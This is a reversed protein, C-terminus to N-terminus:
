TQLGLKRSLTVKQHKALWGHCVASVCLYSLLETPSMRFRKLFDGISHWKRTMRKDHKQLQTCSTIWKHSMTTDHKHLQQRIRTHSTHLSEPITTGHKYMEHSLKTDNTHLQKIVQTTNKTYCTHVMQTDNNHWERGINQLEWKEHIQQAVSTHRKRTNM